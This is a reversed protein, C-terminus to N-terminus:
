SIGIIINYLNEFKDVVGYRTSNTSLSNFLRKTIKCIRIMKMIFNQISSDEEIFKISEGYPPIRILM